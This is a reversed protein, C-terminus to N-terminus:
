KEIKSEQSSELEGEFNFVFTGKKGMAKGETCTTLLLIKLTDLSHCTYM